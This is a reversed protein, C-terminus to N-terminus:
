SLCALDQQRGGGGAGIDPVLSGSRGPRRPRCGQGARHQHRFLDYEAVAASQQAQSTISGLSVIGVSAVIAFRKTNSM